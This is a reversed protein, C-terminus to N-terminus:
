EGEIVIQSYDAIQIFLRSLEQLLAMRNNRIRVDKDMVLVEDFFKDVVPQIKLIMRQAKDYRGHKLLASINERL